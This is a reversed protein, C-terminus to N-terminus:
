GKFPPARKLFTPKENTLNWSQLQNRVISRDLICLTLYWKTAMKLPKAQSPTIGRTLSCLKMGDTYGSETSRVPNIIEDSSIMLLPSMFVNKIVEGYGTSVAV